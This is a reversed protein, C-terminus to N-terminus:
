RSARLLGPNRLAELAAQVQLDRQAAIQDGAAVGHAQTVIEELLRNRIWSLEGSWESAAPQIRRETLFVKLDDLMAPTIALNAPPSSHHAL